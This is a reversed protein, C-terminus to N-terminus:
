PTPAAQAAALLNAFLRCAGPIGAPLQRFFSLGTYIFVGRGHRVWLLGGEQAREGRDNMRLVAQYRPDWSSAFYLGREQVWGAFDAATIKNPANLLRHEPIAFSVAAQEETVRDRGVTFPFPGLPGPPALRNNSNYQVILTGGAQVYAMLAPHAARLTPSQNFARGGTVIAALETPAPNGPRFGALAEEGLLTVDYGLQRLTAPVEDGPGPVYGIKLGAGVIPFAAVQATAPEVLAQIPLDPAALHRM